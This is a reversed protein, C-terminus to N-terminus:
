DLALKVIRIALYIAALPVGIVFAMCDAWSVLAVLCLGIIQLWTPEVTPKM